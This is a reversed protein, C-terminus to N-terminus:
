YIYVTIAVRNAHTSPLLKHAHARAHTCIANSLLVGGQACTVCGDELCLRIRPEDKPVGFYSTAARLVAGHLEVLDASVHAAYHQLIAMPLTGGGGGQTHTHPTCTRTHVTHTHTRTHTHTHPTRTRIHHAHAHAHLDHNRDDWFSKRVTLLVYTCFTYRLCVCM